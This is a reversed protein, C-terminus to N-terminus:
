YYNAPHLHLGLERAGHGTDRTGHGKFVPLKRTTTNLSELCVVLITSPGRKKEQRQEKAKETEKREQGEEQQKRWGSVRRTSDARGGSEPGTLSSRPVLDLGAASIPRHTGTPMRLSLGPRQTRVCCYDCHPLCTVVVEEDKLMDLRQSAGHASRPEVYVRAM